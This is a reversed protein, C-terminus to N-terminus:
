RALALALENEQAMHRTWTTEPPGDPHINERKNGSEQYHSMFLHYKKISRM